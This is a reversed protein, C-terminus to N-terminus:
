GFALGVNDASQEPPAQRTEGDRDTVKRPSAGVLAVKDPDIRMVSFGAVAGAGFGPAFIRMPETIV